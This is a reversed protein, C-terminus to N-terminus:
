GTVSSLSRQTLYNGVQVQRSRRYFVDRDHCTFGSKMHPTSETRWQSDEHTKQKNGKSIGVQKLHSVEHGVGFHIIMFSHDDDAQHLINLQDDILFTFRRELKEQGVAVTREFHGASDLNLIPILDDDFTRKGPTSLTAAESHVAFYLCEGYPREILEVGVQYSLCLGTAEEDIEVAVTM